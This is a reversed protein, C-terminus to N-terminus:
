APRHVGRIKFVGGPLPSSHITRFDDSKRHSRRSPNRENRSALIFMDADVLTYGMDLVCLTKQTAKLQSFQCLIIAKGSRLITCRQSAVHAGYRTQSPRFWVADGRKRHSIISQIFFAALCPYRQIGTPPGRRFGFRYIGPTCPAPGRM